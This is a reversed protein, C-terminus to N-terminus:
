FPLNIDLLSCLCIMDIYICGIFTFIYPNGNASSLGVVVESGVIVESGVMVESGVVVETLLM